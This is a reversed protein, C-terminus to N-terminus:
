APVRARHSGSGSGAPCCCATSGSGPTTATPLATIFGHADAARAAALEDPGPGRGATGSTTRWPGRSCCHEQQLLTVNYRLTRLSLDRIDIDDLLIRGADPDYFRLLLRTITSKGTGSPGAVAVLLGPVATFSLRDLVPRSSRPYSFTVDQM